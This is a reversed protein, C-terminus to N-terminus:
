EHIAKRSEPPTVSRIPPPTGTTSRARTLLLAAPVLLGAASRLGAEDPPEGAPALWLRYWSIRVGAILSNRFAGDGPGPQLQVWGHDTRAWVEHVWVERSHVDLVLVGSQLIPEGACTGAVIEYRGGPLEGALDRAAVDVFEPCRPARAPPTAQVVMAVLIAMLIVLIGALMVLEM